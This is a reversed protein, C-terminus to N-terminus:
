PFDERRSFAASDLLLSGRRWQHAARAAREMVRGGGILAALSANNNVNQTSMVWNFGSRYMSNNGRWDGTKAVYSDFKKESIVPQAEKPASLATTDQM